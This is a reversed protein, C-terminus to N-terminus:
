LWGSVSQPVTLQVKYVSAIGSAVSVASECETRWAEVPDDASLIDGALALWSRLDHERADARVAAPVAGPWERDFRRLDSGGCAPCNCKTVGAGGFPTLAGLTTGKQWSLLTRTFVYPVCRRQEYAEGALKGLPLGHHRTTTSIGVAGLSGGLAAFGVGTADTRLLEVRRGGIRATDLFARLGDVAGPRALPDFREALVFALPDDCVRVYRLLEDSCGRELWWGHLSVVRVTGADVALGFAKKLGARDAKDVFVGASRVVSLGLGRQEAEWDIGFLEGQGDARNLRNLYCAPDLDASHLDGMNALATLARLGPKGCVTVHGAVERVHRVLDLDAGTAYAGITGVCTPAARAETRELGEGVENGSDLSPQPV